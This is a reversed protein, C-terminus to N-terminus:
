REVIDSLHHRLTVFSERSGLLSTETIMKAAIDGLIVWPWLEGPREVYRRLSLAASISYGRIPEGAPGPLWGLKV